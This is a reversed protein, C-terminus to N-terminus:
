GNRDAHQCLENNMNKLTKQNLLKIQNHQPNMRVLMADSFFM